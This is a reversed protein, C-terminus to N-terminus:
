TNMKMQRRKLCEVRQGVAPVGHRAKLIRKHKAPPLSHCSTWSYKYVSVDISALKRMQEPRYIDTQNAKKQECKECEVGPPVSGGSLDFVCAAVTIAKSDSLASVITCTLIFRTARTAARRCEIKM